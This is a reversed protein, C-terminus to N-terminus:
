SKSGLGYSHEWSPIYVYISPFSLLLSNTGGALKDLHCLTPFCIGGKPIRGSMNSGYRHSSTRLLTLLLSEIRGGGEVSSMEGERPGLELLHCQRGGMWGLLSMKQTDRQGTVLYLLSHGSTCQLCHQWELALVQIGM